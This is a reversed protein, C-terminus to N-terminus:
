GGSLGYALFSVYVAGTVSDVSIGPDVQFPYAVGAPTQTIVRPANFTAGGDTSVQIMIRQGNQGSAADCTTNGAYHTILEYVYGGPATAVYPEWDDGGCYGMRQVSTQAQAPAAMFILLTLAPFVALLKNSLRMADM